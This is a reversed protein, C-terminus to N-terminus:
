RRTHEEQGLPHPRTTAQPQGLAGLQPGNIKDVTRHDSTGPKALQKGLETNFTLGHLAQAIQDLAGRARTVVPLIGQHGSRDLQTM